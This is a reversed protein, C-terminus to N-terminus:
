TFIALQRSECTFDSESDRERRDFEVHPTFNGSKWGQGYSKGVSSQGSSSSYGSMDNRDPMAFETLPLVPLV